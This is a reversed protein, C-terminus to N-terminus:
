LRAGFNLRFIEEQDFDEKLFPFALDVGIPGFPSRWTVGVGLSARLSPEDVVNAGIAAVKGASGFDTFLRGAVGLEAPLGLPFSLEVTGTYMWDSGLADNTNTDRPGIGSAAFGRLDSGGVFFRDLFQVDEGIGVIYGATGGLTLTFNEFLPFYTAGKLKNRAYRTNGGAGAVNTTLATYWGDTPNHRSDRRDYQITHLIESIIRQNQEQKLFESAKESVNSLDSKKLSYGWKQSLQETILYGINLGFGTTNTDVSSSNQLDTSSRFLDMGASVERDFFYPETFSIDYQSKRQALVADFKFKQGRGLFNSEELGFNGLIGNTTSYGAGFSIAGTPKEEIEVKITTKDSASGPVQDVQVKSFFNLNQLRQRSRRLKAANFADGEVLRFERRIVQDKSRVNGNIDIRDVFVRPGENVEFNVDIVQEKRKRNVRPRIEVFAHGLTGVATTLTNITKDIQTSDYWDGSEIEIENRLAANDLNRLHAKVTVEGFKYRRGEDITFTIFFSRRNPSLEAAASVVRFDAYGNKLYFRRLLDRDFNIRDPDYNTDGSLFRYWQSEKTRIVERLRADKFSNNGVFRIAEIDTSDGEDIEFVLDVRNQPLQIIKPDVSAAFRGNRRYIALIRKVESQAKSRTYIVRPRLKLESRLTDETVKDNGEFAIRNIIPNEVVIVVLDDGARQLTVDAFLGTAFLSKLSRDIRAQDFPDGPRVLLYSRVTEAEVRQSGEVIIERVVDKTQAFSSGPLGVLFWVALFVGFHRCFRRVSIGWLFFDPSSNRLSGM